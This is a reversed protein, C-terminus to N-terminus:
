VVLNFRSWNYPPLVTHGIQYHLTGRKTVTEIKAGTHQNMRNIAESGIANANVLEREYRHRLVEM